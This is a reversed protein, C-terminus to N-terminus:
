AYATTSRNLLIFCFPSALSTSVVPGIVMQWVSFPLNPMPSTFRLLVLFLVAEILVALAVLGAKALHSEFYLRGRTAYVLFFILTKTLAFFGFTSGAFVDMLFGLFFALIAGSYTVRSLGLSVVLVLVLDPKVSLHSFATTQLFLAILGAALYVIGRRM